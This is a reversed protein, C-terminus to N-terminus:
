KVLTVPIKVLHVVKTAVSGLVLNKVAGMGRTGMVIETCDHVEAYSAIDHAPDGTVLHTSCPMAAEGLLRRPAGFAREADENQLREELGAAAIDPVDHPVLAQAVHLLRVELEMGQQKLATVHRVAHEAGPSGDVPVLVRRM